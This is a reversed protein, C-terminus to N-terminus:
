SLFWPHLQWIINVTM